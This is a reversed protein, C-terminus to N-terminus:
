GEHAHEEVLNVKEGLFLNVSILFFALFDALLRKPKGPNGILRLLFPLPPNGNIHPNLLNPKPVPLNHKQIRRPMPIKNGIHNRPSRLRIIRHQNNINRMKIRGKNTPPLSFLM